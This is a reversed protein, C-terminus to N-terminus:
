GRVRPTIRAGAKARFRVSERSDRYNLSLRLGLREVTARLRVRTYSLAAPALKNLSTGSDRWESRM